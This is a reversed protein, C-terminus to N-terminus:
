FSYNVTLKGLNEHYNKAFRGEYSIAFNWAKYATASAGLKTALANRGLTSGSVNLITDISKLNAQFNTSNDGYEHEWALWAFPHLTSNLNGELAAGLQSRM